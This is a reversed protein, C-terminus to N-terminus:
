SIVLSKWIVGNFSTSVFALRDAPLLCWTGFGINNNPTLDRESQSWGSANHYIPILERSRFIKRHSMIRAGIMVTTMNRDLEM